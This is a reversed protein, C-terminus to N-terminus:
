GKRSCWTRVLPVLIWVAIAGVAGAACRSLWQAASPMAQLGASLLGGLLAIMGMVVFASVMFLGGLGCLWATRRTCGEPLFRPLFALFFLIVKPNSLNLIIGKLYFGFLSRAEAAQPELGGGWMGMAVWILYLAGAAAIGDAFRPFRHLLAAAGLTAAAIHVCLGSMLGFTVALGAPAGFAAAQALVFCNDPGPALAVLLCTGIYVWLKMMTKCRGHQVWLCGLIRKGERM